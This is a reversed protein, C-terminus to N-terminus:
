LTEERLSAILRKLPVKRRRAEIKMVKIVGSGYQAAKKPRSSEELSLLNAVRRLIVKREDGEILHSTQLTGAVELVKRHLYPHKIKKAFHQALTREREVGESLLSELDSRLSRRLMEVPMNKYRAYGAFLEDAGQGSLLEHEEAQQAIMYLPMEFSLTLPNETGLIKALPLLSSIVRERDLVLPRWELGLREASSRAAELDHSGALGITYLRVKVFEMALKALITSDLGGSFLLGVEPEDCDERVALRLAELLTEAESVGGRM